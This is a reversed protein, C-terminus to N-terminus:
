IILPFPWADLSPWILSSVFAHPALIFCVSVTLEVVSVAVDIVTLPDIVPGVAGASVVVAITTALINAAPFVVHLITLPTLRPLVSTSVNPLEAPADLVARTSDDPCVLALIVALPDVVHDLAGASVQPRVAVMVVTLPAIVVHMALTHVMVGAPINVISLVLVIALMAVTLVGPRVSCFVDTRPEVALLVPFAVDHLILNLLMAEPLVAFAYFLVCIERLHGFAVEVRRKILKHDGCRWHLINRKVAEVDQRVLLLSHRHNIAIM